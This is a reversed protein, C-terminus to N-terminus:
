AGVAVLEESASRAEHDNERGQQTIEQARVALAALGYTYGTIQFYMWRDGFLNAVVATVMLAAFGLGIGRLFPDGATRYLRFGIRFLKGFIALFLALGVLGTEVLVKVFVNHTDGYGGVHSEYAYTNFGTGFIPDARFVQMAEEWLSVRAAASHDMTGTGQDDTTMSIRERVAVPVLSQWILLFGLVTMLLFRSRVIGLYLLGILCAAYGGRSLAFLVCYIGSAFVGAYGLRAALRKHLLFLGALFVSFQATFAALGNVGAWGLPGPDRLDYSFASFNRDGVVNHFGKAVLLAGACMALMLFGIQRKTRIAGTTVFFMLSLDVVYNKWESVRPDSFWLPLNIGLFFSGRVMSLFTFIIYSFLLFNLPTRPFIPQGRRKLGLMVGLLLIDVFQEGLFYGHVKYRVTQLPLLPMLVYLGVTPRWFVSLLFGVIEVIWLLSGVYNDIGLHPVASIHRLERDLRRDAWELGRWIWHKPDIGLVQPRATGDLM